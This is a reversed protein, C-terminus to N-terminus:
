RIISQSDPGQIVTWSLLHVLITIIEDAM